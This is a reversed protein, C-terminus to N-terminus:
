TDLIEEEATSPPSDYVVWFFDTRERMEHEEFYKDSM